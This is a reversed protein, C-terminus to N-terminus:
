CLHRRARGDPHHGPGAGARPHAGVRPRPPRHRARPGGRGRRPADHRGAGPLAPRPPGSSLQAEPSLGAAFWTTSLLAVLSALDVHELPPDPVDHMLAGGLQPPARLMRGVCALPPAARALAAHTALNCPIAASRPGRQDARSTVPAAGTVAKTTASASPIPLDRDPVPSEIPVSAAMQTRATRAPLRRSRRARTDRSTGPPTPALPPGAARRPICPGRTERTGGRPRHQRRRRRRADPKTTPPGDSSM